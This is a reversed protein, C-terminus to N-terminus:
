QGSILKLMSEVTPVIGQMWFFIPKDRMKKRKTARYIRAREPDKARYKILARVITEYQGFLLNGSLIVSPRKDIVVSVQVTGKISQFLSSRANRLIHPLAFLLGDGWIDLVDGECFSNWLNDTNEAEREARAVIRSSIKAVVDNIRDFEGRKPTFKILIKTGCLKCLANVFVRFKIEQQKSLRHKLTQFRLDGEALTKLTEEADQSM